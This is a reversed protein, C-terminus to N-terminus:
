YHPYEQRNRLMHLFNMHVFSPHHHHTTTHRFFIPSELNHMHWEMKLSSLTNASLGHATPPGLVPIDVQPVRYGGTSDHDRPLAMPQERLTRQLHTDTPNHQPLNTAATNEVRSLPDPNQVLQPYIGPPPTGRPAGVSAARSTQSPNATENPDNVEGPQAQGQLVERPQSEPTDNQSSYFTNEDFSDSHSSHAAVSPQVGIQEAPLHRVITLAKALVDSIDFDPLSESSQMLLKNAIKKQENQERISREVRQRQLQIEAKVLDDSKTLLVPDIGSTSSRTQYSGPLTPRGNTFRQATPSQVPTSSSAGDYQPGMPKNQSPQTAPRPSPVNPSSGNRNSNNLKGVLHPAVKVRPHTGALVADRFRLIKEYELVERLEAATM